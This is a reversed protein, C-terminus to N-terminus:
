IRVWRSPNCTLAGVNMKLSNFGNHVAGLLLMVHSRMKVCIILFLLYLQLLANMNQDAIRKTLYAINGFAKQDALMYWFQPMASQHLSRLRIFSM